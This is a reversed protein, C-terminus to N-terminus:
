FSRLLVESYKRIKSFFGKRIKNFLHQYCIESEETFHLDPRAELLQMEENEFDNIKKMGVLKAHILKHCEDDLLTGVTCKSKM